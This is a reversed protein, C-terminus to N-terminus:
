RTVLNNSGVPLPCCFHIWWHFGASCVNSIFKGSLIFYCMFFGCGGFEHCVRNERFRPASIVGVIPEGEHLLALSTTCLELGHVFNSTGEIPDLVWMYETLVILKNTPKREWLLYILILM